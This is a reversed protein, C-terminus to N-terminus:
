EYYKPIEKNSIFDKQIMYTKLVINLDDHEEGTETQFCIIVWDIEFELSFPPFL